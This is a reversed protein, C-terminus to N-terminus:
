DLQRNFASIARVTELILPGLQEALRENSWRGRPASINIAGVARGNPGLIPAALNLDGRYYEESASAFGQQRAELILEKLRVPDTVTAPTYTRITTTRLFEDIEDDAMTSLIARGSATCFMPLATGLPMHVSIHKQSPFRATFVMKDEFPESLNVTEGCKASLEQLYPNAIEVLRDTAIYAFGLQLVKPTLAYRKTVPDKSLYGLSELTHATRQAASKTIGAAEAMEPLNMTRRDHGFAALVQLGKALSANFLGSGTSEPVSRGGTGVSNDQTKTRAM